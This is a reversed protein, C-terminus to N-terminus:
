AAAHSQRARDAVTIWCAGSASAFIGRKASAAAVSFATGDIILHTDASLEEIATTVSAQSTLDIDGCCPMNRQETRRRDTGATGIIRYMLRPTSKYDRDGGSTVCWIAIAVTANTEAGDPSVTRIAFEGAGTEIVSYECQTGVPLRSCTLTSIPITTVITM